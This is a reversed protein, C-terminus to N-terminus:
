SNRLVAMARIKDLIEAGTLEFSDTEVLAYYTEQEETTLYIYVKFGSEPFDWYWDKGPTQEIQATVREYNQGCVSAVKPLLEDLNITNFVCFSRAYKYMENTDTLKKIM